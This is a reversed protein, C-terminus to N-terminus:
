RGWCVEGIDHRTESYMESTELFDGQNLVQFLFVLTDEQGGEHSIPIVRWLGQKSIKNFHMLMPGRCCFGEWFGEETIGQRVEIYHRAM